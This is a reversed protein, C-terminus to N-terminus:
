EFNVYEQVTEKLMWIGTDRDQLYELRDDREPQGINKYLNCIWNEYRTWIGLEENYEDPKAEVGAGARYEGAGDGLGFDCDGGDYDCEINLCDEDCTGDGIFGDGCGPACHDSCDGKDNECADVACEPDCWGDGVWM